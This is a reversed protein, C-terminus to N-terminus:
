KAQFTNEILPKADVQGVHCQTCFYWLGSVETTAKGDRDFYHSEHPMPAGSDKDGHCDLCDNDNISIDYEEVAHPVLPPQHAFTRPVTTEETKWDMGVTPNSGSPIDTDGRLSTVDKGSKTACAAAFALLIITFIMKKM